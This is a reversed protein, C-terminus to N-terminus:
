SPSCHFRGYRVRGGASVRTEDGAGCDLSLIAVVSVRGIFSVLRPERTEEGGLMVPCSSYVGYILPVNTAVTLPRIRHVAAIPGKQKEGLNEVPLSWRITYPSHTCLTNTWAFTPTTLLKLFHSLSTSVDSRALAGHCTISVKSLM